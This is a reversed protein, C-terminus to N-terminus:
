PLYTIVLTPRDSPVLATEASWFQAQDSDADLDEEVAFRLRYQSQPRSADLDAQVQATVSVTQPGLVASSALTAFGQSSPFSRAYAGAELVSGYVVQDLLLSGLTGYPNSNVNRQVLTLTASVVTAGAPITSVDFSVFGRIGGQPGLANAYDGATVNSSLTVTGGAFVLGDLAPTSTLTVTVPAPNQEAGGGCGPLTLTALFVAATGAFRM